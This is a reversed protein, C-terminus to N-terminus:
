WIGAAEAGDETNWETILLHFNWCCIIWHNLIQLRRLSVKNVKIVELIETRIAEGKYSEKPTFKDKLSHYISNMIKKVQM